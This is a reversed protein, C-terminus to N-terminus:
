QWAEQFTKRDHKVAQLASRLVHGLTYAGARNLVALKYNKACWEISDASLSKAQFRRHLAMAAMAHQVLARETNGNSGLLLAIRRLAFLRREERARESQDM